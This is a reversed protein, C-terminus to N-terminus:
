REHSRDQVSSALPTKNPDAHSSRAVPVAVPAVVRVTTDLSRRLVPPPANATSAQPEVESPQTPLDTGSTSTASRRTPGHAPAGGVHPPTIVVPGPLPTAIPTAIPTAMPTALAQRATKMDLPVALPTATARLSVPVPTISVRSPLPTGITGGTRLSSPGEIMHAARTPLPTTLSVPIDKYFASELYLASARGVLIKVVAGIPVALLVGVSGFLTGATMMTLIVEIPKLGVSGGVIKPTIFMGDLAQVTLMLAVVAALVRPGQWDLVAMLVAMVFGTASGVYPVFGLFGTLVGIPIALRLGIAYLGVSYITALLMSAILQGRFYRGLTHHIEKAVDTVVAAYRRPVLVRSRAVIVDFDMLLYLAFVPIILSGLMVLVVNVTGFLAPIAGRLVEPAKAAITDSYQTTADILDHPIKTHFREMAWPEARQWLSKLQSSLVGAAAIFEDIFYPVAVIILTVAAAVLSAMLAIAAVPRPVNYRELRKVVPDLAYAVLFALFLPVLVGRLWYALVCVAVVLAIQGLRSFVHRAVFLRLEKEAPTM